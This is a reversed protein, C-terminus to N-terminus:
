VRDKNDREIKPLGEIATATISYTQGFFGWMGINCLGEEKEVIADIDKRSGIGKNFQNIAVHRSNFFMANGEYYIPYYKIEKMLENLQIGAKAAYVTLFDLLGTNLADKYYVM